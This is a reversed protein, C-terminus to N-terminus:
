FLAGIGGLIMTKSFALDEAESSFRYTMFRLGVEYFFKSTANMRFSTELDYSTKLSYNSSGTMALPIRLRTLWWDIHGLSWEPGPQESFFDVGLASLQSGFSISNYTLGIGLAPDKMHLGPSFRYHGWFEFNTWDSEDTKKMVLKDARAGLGWRFDPLWWQIESESVVPLMLKTTLEFPTGRYVDYAAIFKGDPSDVNLYRRNNAASELHRLTWKKEGVIVSDQQSSSMKFKSFSKELYMTIEPDYTKEQAGSAIKIQLSDKRVPGEILFEQRLPIGGEGKLYVIPRDSPLEAEWDQAGLLKVEQGSVPETGVARIVLNKGNQSLFVDKFFVDKRRTSIELTAGSVLLTRLSVTDTRQNLFIAGQPDVPRGNIEVYSESRFSDRSQVRIGDATRKLFLDKSCMYIRTDEDAKAICLKFFAAFKFKKILEDDLPSSEFSALQTRHDADANSSEEESIRVQVPNMKLSWLAKGVNDKIVLEGETLLRAPWRFRLRFSNESKNVPVLQFDLKTVDLLIDGIRFRDKDVLHYEFRQPFIKIGNKELPFSLLQAYSASALLCVIGVFYRLINV